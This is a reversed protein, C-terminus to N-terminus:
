VKQLEGKHLVDLAQKEQIERADSLLHELHVNLRM